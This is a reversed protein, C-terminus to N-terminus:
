FWGPCITRLVRDQFFGKMFFPGTSHSLMYAKLKKTKKKREKKKITNPNSSLVEHKSPRHEVVPAM